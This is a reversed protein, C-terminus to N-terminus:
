IKIIRGDREVMFNTKRSSDAEFILDKHLHSSGEAAFIMWDDEIIAVSEKVSTGGYVTGAIQKHDIVEGKHNYTVLIFSYTLVEAKWFLLAQFKEEPEFRAVVLIETMDDSVDEWPLLDEIVPVPMPDVLSTLQKQLEGSLVLPIEALPVQKIFDNFDM